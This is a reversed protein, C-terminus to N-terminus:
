DFLSPEEEDEIEPTNEDSTEPPDVNEIIKTTSEDVIVANGEIINDDEDDKDNEARAIGMLSDDESINVIKVGLANRGLISVNSLSLKITKGLSTMCILSDSDNVTIASILKGTKDTM